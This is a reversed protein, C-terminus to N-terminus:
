PLAGLRSGFDELDQLELRAQSIVERAQPMLDPISSSWQTPQERHQLLIRPVGEEGGHREGLLVAEEIEIAQFLHHQPLDRVVVEHEGELGLVIAMVSSRSCSRCFRLSRAMAARKSSTGAAASVAPVGMGVKRVWSIRASHSARWSSVRRLRM